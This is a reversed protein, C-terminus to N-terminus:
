YYLHHKKILPVFRKLICQKLYMEKNLALGSPDVFPTSIGRSSLAVKVLVKKPFKQKTKFKVDAPAEWRKIIDYVTTKAVYEDSFHDVIFKKGKDIHAVCFAYVRKRLTSVCEFVFVFPTCM